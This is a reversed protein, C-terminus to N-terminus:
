VVIKSINREPRCGEDTEASRASGGEGVPPSPKAQREGLLAADSRDSSRHRCRGQHSCANGAGIGVGLLIIITLKGFSDASFRAARSRSRSFSIQSRRAM